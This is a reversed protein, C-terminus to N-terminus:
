VLCFEGAVINQVNSGRVAMEKAKVADQGAKRLGTLRHNEAGGTGKGRATKRHTHGELLLM